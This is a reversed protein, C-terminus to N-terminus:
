TRTPCHDPRPGHKPQDDRNSDTEQTEISRARILQGCTELIRPLDEPRARWVTLLALGGFVLLGVIPCLAWIIAVYDLM